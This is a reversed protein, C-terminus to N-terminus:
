SCTLCVPGSWSGPPQCSMSLTSRAPKRARHRTACPSSGSGPIGSSHSAIAPNTSTGILGYGPRVQDMWRGSRVPQVLYDLIPVYELALLEFLLHGAVVFVVFFPDGPELPAGSAGQRGM